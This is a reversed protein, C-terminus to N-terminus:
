LSDKIIQYNYYFSALFKELIKPDNSVMVSEDNSYAGGKSWNNTGFLIKQDDIILIHHHLFPDLSEEKITASTTAILPTNLTHDNLIELNTLNEETKTKNLLQFVSSSSYFNFNDALITIKIGARAQHLIEEALYTDTFDWIMIKINNKAGQLLSIIRNNFSNSSWGPGFWVEYSYGNAKLSLDWPYYNKNNLKNKEGEGRALREFERGFSTIIEHNGTILVFSRDYVAQLDTWNFSGFILKEKLTERDIIAFKHHMLATQDFGDFGLDLRKINSPLDTFIKDHIKSKRLDLILTVNVGRNAARYVAEKLASSKFSYMAIELTKEAQDIEKIILQSFEASTMQPNSDNPENSFFIDAIVPEKTEVVQSPQSSPIIFTSFPKFIKKALIAIVFLTILIILIYFCHHWIKKYKFKM